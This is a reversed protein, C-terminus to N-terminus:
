KLRLARGIKRGEYLDAASAREGEITFVLRAPTGELQFANKGQYLLRHAGMEGADIWPSEDRRLVTFDLRRGDAELRYRGLLPEIMSTTVPLDLVEPGPRAGKEKLYEAVPSAPDGGAQAHDLLPIDHAGLTAIVSPSAEVIARVVALDGLAAAAFVTYPAGQDLLFRLIDRSGSHAAAAVCDEFDGPSWEWAARILRPERSLLRRTSELDAHAARVFAFVLDPNLTREVSQSEPQEESLAPGGVAVLPTVVQALAAGGAGLFTRRSLQIPAHDNM